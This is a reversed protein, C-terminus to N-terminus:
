GAHELWYTSITPQKSDKWDLTIRVARPAGHMGKTPPFREYWEQGALVSFSLSRIGRALFQSQIEAGPETLDTSERVLATKGHSTDELLRYRVLTPRRPLHLADGVPEIHTLVHLQLIPTPADLIRLAEGREGGLPLLDHLDQRIMTHVVTERQANMTRDMLRKRTTLAQLVVQGTLAALLGTLALAALLEVLTFAGARPDLRKSPVSPFL